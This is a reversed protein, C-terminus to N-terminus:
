SSPKADAAGAAVFSLVAVAEVFYILVLSYCGVCMVICSLNVYVNELLSFVNDNTSIAIPTIDMPM